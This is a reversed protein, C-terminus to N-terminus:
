WRGTPLQSERPALWDAIARLALSQQRVPLDTDFAVDCGFRICLEEYSLQRLRNPVTEDLLCHLLTRASYPQGRRYRFEPNFRAANTALWTNWAEPDRVPLHVTTGFPQGDVRRPLEKKERWARLEADFLGAEEVEEPVFVEEFLPAGTIWHLAQAAPTGLEESDLVATMSRVTTLDGLLGLALLTEPTATGGELRRRLEGAAARDGGLGLLIQSWDEDAALGECTRLADRGGTRLLGFYAESRVAADGHRTSEILSTRAHERDRVRSLAWLIAPSLVADAATRRILQEGGGARRFGCVQALLPVQRPDGLEIARTINPYWSDPLEYKLADTVARTKAADKYDLARWTEALLRADEHRCFVSVAAFLEGADGEKARRECTELALQGGIMLADLHAELREEFDALRTWPLEVDSRLAKAQTYLFSADELHEEYMHVAFDHPSTAM